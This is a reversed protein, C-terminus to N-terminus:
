KPNLRIPAAHSNCDDPFETGLRYRFLIELRHSDANRFRQHVSDDWTARNHINDNAKDSARTVLCVRLFVVEFQCADEGKLICNFLGSYRRNFSGLWAM